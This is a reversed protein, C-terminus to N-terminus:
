MDKFPKNHTWNGEAPPLYSRLAHIAKEALKRYTTLKGGYINLLPVNNNQVNLDLYYDRTMKSLNNKNNKILPRIGSFTEIIDKQSIKNTFYTNVCDLLYQIESHDIKTEEPSEVEVETTGILTYHKKYPIVFVVRNDTNQLTFAVEQNYLKKTVIHSGKVLSVLQSSKLNLVNQIVQNVWPGTANILIKSKVLKNNAFYIEWGDSKRLAKTVKLNEFIKAGRKEADSVNLKVLEQDDVQLDYYQFGKVFNSKLLNKINKQIQMSSSKPITKRSGLNDYIFLGLRILWAPRLRSTHPIIFPIPRTIQPALKHIIDRETLSERVLSFEFNELYRLGGHILKTSWSSTAGGIKGKDSLGVRLGRGAADRAIGAGNIGGGIIFIDFKDEM